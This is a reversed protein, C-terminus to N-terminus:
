VLFNLVPLGRILYRSRASYKNFFSDCMPFLGFWTTTCKTLLLSVETDEFVITWSGASIVVRRLTRHGIEGLSIVYSHLDKLYQGWEAIIGSARQHHDKLAFIAQSLMESMEKNSPEAARARRPYPVDFGKAEVILIPSRNVPHVGLYDFYLRDGSRTEGRAEEVIQSPNDPNWDLARLFHDILFRRTTRELLSDPVEVEPTAAYQQRLFDEERSFHQYGARLQAAFEAIDSALSM